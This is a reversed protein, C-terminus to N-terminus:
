MSVFYLHSLFSCLLPLLQRILFFFYLLLESVLITSFVFIWDGYYMCVDIRFIFSTATFSRLYSATRSTYAPSLQPKSQSPLPTRMTLVTWIQVDIKLDRSSFLCYNKSCSPLSCDNGLHPLGSQLLNPPLFWSDQKPGVSISIGSVDLHLHWASSRFSTVVLM